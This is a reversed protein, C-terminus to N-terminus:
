EAYGDANTLDLKSRVFTGVGHAILRDAEDYLHSEAIFQRATANLVKGRATIVGEVVPRMLHVTYDSTLVFVDRVLSNAAFFGADDMMKFYVSGHVAHAAHHFDTRATIRIECQGHEIHILPQYYANTPARLYIRELARWYQEDTMRAM